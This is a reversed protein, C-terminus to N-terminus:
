GAPKPFKEKVARVHELMARTEPPLSAADLQGLAKWIADLQDGVEAYEAARRGAHPEDFHIGM